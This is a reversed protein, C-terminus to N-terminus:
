AANSYHALLRTADADLVDLRRDMDALMLQWLGEFASRDDAPAEATHATDLPPRTERVGSGGTGVGGEDHFMM